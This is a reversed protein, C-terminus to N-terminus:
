AVAPEFEHNSSVGRAGKELDKGFLGEYFRAVRKNQLAPRKM